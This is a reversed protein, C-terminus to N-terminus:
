RRILWWWFAGLGALIVVWAVIAVVIDANSARRHDTRADEWRWSLPWIWIPLGKKVM